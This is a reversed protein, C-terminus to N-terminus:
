GSRRRGLALLGGALVLGLSAPEPIPDGEVEPELRFEKKHISAVSDAESVALLLNDIVVEARSVGFEFAINNAALVPGFEAILGNSWPALIVPGDSVLDRTVSSSAFFPIPEDLPVGDVELINVDISLGAAVSTAGTGSGFLTYDGGESILLSIIGSEPLTAIEFNLQGDTIDSNGDTAWAAFGKPDFDLVDGALEPVGYLPVADTASSETVGEYITGFPPFDPGFDGYDISAAGAVPVTALPFVLASLGLVLLASSRLM